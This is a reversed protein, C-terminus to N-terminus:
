SLTDYAKEAFADLDKVWHDYETQTLRNNMLQWDLQDMRREVWREISEETWTRSESVPLQGDVSFGFDSSSYITM